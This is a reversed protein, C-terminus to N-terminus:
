ILKSLVGDGFMTEVLNCDFLGISLWNLGGAILLVMALKFVFKKLYLPSWVGVLRDQWSSM